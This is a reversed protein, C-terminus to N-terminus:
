KLLIMKNTQTFDRTLLKYFYIGGSVLQGANNRGDWNITYKGVQKYEKVLTIVEKGVLDYIVINVETNIPISFEIETIPNFPNPTNQNLAYETPLSNDIVSLTTVTVQNSFGSENGVNDIASIKYYYVTHSEINIIDDYETQIKDVIALLDALTPTFGSIKNRYINYHALDPESNQSWKLKIGGQFVSTSTIIPTAPPTIDAPITPTVDVQASRNSKNGSADSASIRYYYTIGNTVNNDTYNTTNKGVSTLYDVWGDDDTGKFLHYSHLDTETNANWSLTVESNGATATFNSPTAPPTTDTTDQKVITINDILFGSMDYANMMLVNDNIEFKTYNMTSVNEEIFWGSGTLDRPAGYSGAVIQLRGQEEGSGYEGVPSANSVNLNIPKSRLYYHTHGNLVVDVGYDDFAKWWTSRYSDMDNTHGGTTFFPKHFFVIIWTKTTTSLENVLWTHQTSFYGESFLCIFLADGFEFSYWKENGPLVFQNIYISGYDHNGGTHYILNNELFNSGKNYWNNWDTTSSGSNVHDGLFLHFDVSETALKNAATEWDDLNTRSDGGAIFSFNAANQSVSTYFTMDSTWAGSSFISYHIISNTNVTPFTYDYLYASYGNRRLGGFTGQEYSITYGWKIQDSAGTSQWTVTLGNQPNDTSGWHIYEQGCLLHVSFFVYLLFYYVKKM